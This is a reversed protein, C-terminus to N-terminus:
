LEFENDRLFKYFDELNKNFKLKPFNEKFFDWYEMTSETDQVVEDLEIMPYCFLLYAVELPYGFIDESSFKYEESIKTGGWMEEMKKSFIDELIDLESLTLERKDEKFFSIVADRVPELIQKKM